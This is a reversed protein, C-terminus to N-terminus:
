DSPLACTLLSFKSCSCLSSKVKRFTLSVRRGRPVITFTNSSQHTPNSYDKHYGPMHCHVEDIKRPTIRCLHLAVCFNPEFEKVCHILLCSMLHAHTHPQSTRPFVVLQFVLASGHSWLYRSEETMVLISRQPLFVAVKRGDPHRFDMVVQSPWRSNYCVKRTTKQQVQSGFSLSVIRDEFPSHTDVHPPIGTSSSACM